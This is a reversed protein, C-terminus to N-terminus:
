AAAAAPSARADPPRLTRKGTEPDPPGLEWGKTKRRHHVSCLWALNWRATPGGKAYDVECHDRELYGRRHCGVV